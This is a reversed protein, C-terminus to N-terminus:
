IVEIMTNTSMSILIHHNCVYLAKQSFKDRLEANDAHLDDRERRLAEYEEKMQM